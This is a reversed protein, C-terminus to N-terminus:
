LFHLKSHSVSLGGGLSKAKGGYTLTAWLHGISAFVLFILASNFLLNDVYPSCRYSAMKKRKKLLFRLEGDLTTFLYCKM